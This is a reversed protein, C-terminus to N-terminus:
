RRQDPPLHAVIPRAAGAVGLGAWVCILPLLPVYYRQWGIPALLLAALLGGTAVGLVLLARRRGAPLAAARPRLQWAALAAGFLAMALLLGGPALNATAPAAHFLTLWPRAQYAAEAAATAAAYNPLEWYALPAFFLQYILAALREAPGTLVPGGAAQLASVQAALLDARAAQMAALGLAPAAWLAPNLLWGAAACALAAVGARRLAARWSRPPALAAATLGAPLLALGTLKAAAAVAVAAGVCVVRRGWRLMVWVAVLVTLVAPGESMARRGHLWLLGNACYLAAASLGAGWGGGQRAVVFVFVAGAATALAAPLRAALLLQPSPVAGATLNAAWDASWNWDAAPLVAHQGSLIRSLGILYRSLPAELLRYRRVEPAAPAAQWTVGAPDHQWFLVDFDRSLYLHTSEDPHFPVGPLTVVLAAAYGGWVLWVAAWAVLRARSM